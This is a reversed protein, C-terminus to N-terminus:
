RKLKTWNLKSLMSAEGGIMQITRTLSSYLLTIILVVEIPLM